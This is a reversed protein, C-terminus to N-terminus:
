LLLLFIHVYNHVLLLAAWLCGAFVGLAAITLVITRMNETATVVQPVFAIIMLLPIARLSLLPVVIFFFPLWWTSSMVLGWWAEVGRALEYAARGWIVTGIVLKVPHVFGPSRSLFWWHFATRLRAYL